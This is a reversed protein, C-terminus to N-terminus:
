YKRGSVGYMGMDFLPNTNVMGSNTIGSVNVKPIGGLAIDNLGKIQDKTFNTTIFDQFKIPDTPATSLDIGFQKNVSQMILPDTLTQQFTKGSALNAGYNQSAQNYARASQSKSYLPVFSAAQQVTSAVGAIADKTYANGMQEANAAATQAGEVEALNLNARANRLQANEVATAKDLATLEQGMESAIQQQGQQQLAYIRGATEAAGREGERGAEIAQAGASILAERELNYPEKQIGLAASYNISLEKKAEAMAREAEAEAKKQLNRQKGAQAFSSVTSGATAALGAAAAITTFAPM